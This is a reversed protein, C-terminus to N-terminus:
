WQLYGSSLTPSPRLPRKHSPYLCSLRLALLLPAIIMYTCSFAAFDSALDLSLFDFEMEAKYAKTAPYRLALNSFSMEHINEITTEAPFFPRLLPERLWQADM